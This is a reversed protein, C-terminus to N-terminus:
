RDAPAPRAARAQAPMVAILLVSHEMGNQGGGVRVRGFTHAGDRDGDTALRTTGHIFLLAAVVVRLARLAQRASSDIRAGM